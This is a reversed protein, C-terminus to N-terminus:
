IKKAFVLLRQLSTGIPTCTQLVLDYTNQTLYEVEDPWVVKKGVVEYSVLEGKYFILISDHEKLEHIRFFASNYRTINWPYDSSHAFLYMGGNQDPLSTGKAHAIGQKLKDTYETENFPDVNEIIHSTAGISPISITFEQSSPQTPVQQPSFYISVLPLYIYALLLGASIMMGTGLYYSFPKKPKM